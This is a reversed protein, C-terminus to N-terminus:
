KKREVVLMDLSRRGPTAELGFQERMIRELENRLANGQLSPNWTVDVDYADTLGTEDVVPKNYLRSIIHSIGNGNPDSIKFGILKLSGANQWINPGGGASVKLGPANNSVVTLVMVDTDRTETHTTIGYQKKLEERLLQHSNESVALLVDFNGRPMNAPLIMREPAMGYAAHLVEPFSACRLMFRGEPDPSTIIWDGKGAYKTPRLIVAEPLPAEDINLKMQDWHAFYNEIQNANHQHVAILGGTTSGIVVIAAVGAVVATKAKTWAMIKLAGKILAATSTSATAGKALAIATISQTLADPAPQISNTSISQAIVDTTSDVGRRSFYKRLKELARAARKHVAWEGVGLLAASEAGTKNEFYRLAVLTREKESLRSMADELLPGVQRWTADTNPNDLTSEMHAEEERRERRTRTRIFQLATFRTTEYLWGTLITKPRLGSAKQALIVFVAQAVDEADPPNGTFRMAVSYVLNVHRQVLEAFATESNGAAYERVLDMDSTDSM